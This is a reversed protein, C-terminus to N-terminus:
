KAASAAPKASDALQKAFYQSSQKIGVVRFPHSDVQELVQVGKKRLDQIMDAENKANLDRQFDRGIAAGSLLAKQHAPSLSEFRKVNVVVMLATYAHRTLTIYKQVEYLKASYTIPLPHDQADIKDAKLAAYLEGLPMSVTKAGMEKFFLTQPANGVRLRLDKLDAPTKIFGKNSSISRFGVEWFSLGKIGEPVAQSLLIQGFYPSDLEKWAERSSNFSYPQDIEALRPALSAFNGSGAMTMDLAGSKTDAISKADNGLEGNPFIDIRLGGKTQDSVASAMKVAALHQSSTASGAHALRLVVQASIGSSAIVLACSVLGKFLKMGISVM